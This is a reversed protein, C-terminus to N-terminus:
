PIPAYEGYGTKMISGEDLLQKLIKMVTARKISTKSLIDKPTLPKDSSKLIDYITQMQANRKFESNDGLIEWSWTNSHYKLAYVSSEIDRGVIHLEADAQGSRHKLALLNDAAGTLGFSGSFDDMIDDSQFKRFHHVLLISIGYRDSLQKIASVNSYDADYVNYNNNNSSKIKALTDIIVLRLNPTTEISQKLDELGGNDMRKWENAFYLNNPAPKGQLMTKLRSQLRRQTDELALYLVSGQKVDIKGLAQTGTAISISINLSFISKGMKPKGALINLGEPLLNPIAWKPESLHMNMLDHASYKM